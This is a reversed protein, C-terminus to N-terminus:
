VYMAGIALAALITVGGGGFIIAGPTTFLWNVVPYTLYYIFGFLVFLEPM